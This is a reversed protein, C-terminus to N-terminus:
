AGSRTTGHSESVSRRELTGPPSGGFARGQEELQVRQKKLSVEGDHLIWLAAFLQLSSLSILALAKLGLIVLMGGFMAVIVVVCGWRVRRLEVLRTDLRKVRATAEERTRAEGHLAFVHVRDTNMHRCLFGAFDAKSVGSLLEGRVHLPKERGPLGLFLETFDPRVHEKRWIEINAIEDWRFSTTENRQHLTLRDKDLDLSFPNPWSSRAQITEPLPPPPPLVWVQRILRNLSEADSPELLGLQLRRPLFGEVVYRYELGDSSEGLCIRGEAFDEWPWLDWGWLSRRAIGGEDVRLRPGFYPLGWALMLAPFAVAGAVRWLPRQQWWALGFVLVVILFTGGIAWLIARRYEAALFYDASRPNQTPEGGASEVAEHPNESHM